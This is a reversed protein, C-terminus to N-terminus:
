EFYTFFTLSGTYIGPVFNEEGLIKLTANVATHINEGDDADILSINELYVYDGPGDLKINEAGVVTDSQGVGTCIASQPNMVDLIDGTTSVKNYGDYTVTGGTFTQGNVLVKGFNMPTCTVSSVSVLEASVEVSVQHANEVQANVSTATMLAVAGLLFYKRM